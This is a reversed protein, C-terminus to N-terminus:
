TFLVFHWNNINYFRFIYFKHNVFKKNGRFGSLAPADRNKNIRLIENQGTTSSDHYVFTSCNEPVKWMREQDMLAPNEGRKLIPQKQLTLM